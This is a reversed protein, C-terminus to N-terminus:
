AHTIAAKANYTLVMTTIGTPHAIVYLQKPESALASVPIVLQPKLATTVAIIACYAYNIAVVMTM